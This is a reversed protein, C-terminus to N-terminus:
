DLDEDDSESEVSGVTSTTTTEEKANEVHFNELIDDEDALAQPVRKADDDDDDDDDDGIIQRKKRSDEDTDVDPQAADLLNRLRALLLVKDLNRYSAERQVEGADEESSSSLASRSSVVYVLLALAILTLYSRM